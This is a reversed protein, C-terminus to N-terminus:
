PVNGVNEDAFWKIKKGIIHKVRNIVSLINQIEWKQKM